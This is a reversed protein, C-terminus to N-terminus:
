SKVRAEIADVLARAQPFEGTELKSYVREDDVLVEFQGGDSPVLTMEQIRQKFHTLIEATL